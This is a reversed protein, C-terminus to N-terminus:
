NETQKQLISTLIKSLNLLRNQAIRNDSTNPLNNLISYLRKILAILCVAKSEDEYSLWINNLM